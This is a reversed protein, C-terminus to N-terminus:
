GTTFTALLIRDRWQVDAFRAESRKFNDVVVFADTLLQGTLDDLRARSREPAIALQEGDGALGRNSQVTTKSWKHFRVAQRSIKADFFQVDFIIRDIM